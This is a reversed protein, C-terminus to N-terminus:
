KTIGKSIRTFSSFKDSFHICDIPIFSTGMKYFRPIEPPIFEIPISISIKTIALIHKHQTWGAKITGQANNKAPVLLHPNTGYGCVALVAYHCM